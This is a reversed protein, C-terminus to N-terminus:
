IASRTGTISLEIPPVFPHDASGFTAAHVTAFHALDNFNEVIRSPMAQWVDSTLQFSLRGPEDYASWDPPEDIPEDSLSVWVLGHREVAPFTRLTLKGPLRDDPRAPLHVPGGDPDIHLGHYPCVLCPTGDPGAAVHGPSLKAGRHLCRDPTALLRDGLRAVVVDQGLLRVALPGDDLESAYGAALWHRALVSDEASAPDETPAALPDIM